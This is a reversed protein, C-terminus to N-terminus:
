QIGYASKAEGSSGFQHFLLTINFKLLAATVTYALRFKFDVISKTASQSGAQPM